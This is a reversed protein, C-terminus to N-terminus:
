GHVGQLPEQEADGSYPSMATESQERTQNKCGQERGTRSLRLNISARGFPVPGCVCNKALSATGLKWPMAAMDDVVDMDTRAKRLVECSTMGSKLSVSICIPSM